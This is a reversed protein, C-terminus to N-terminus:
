CKSGSAQVFDDVSTVVAKADGTLTAAQSPSPNSSLGQLSGKLNAVSAKIASTQSPFDSKASSVVKGADSQVASLKTKLEELGGSQLPNVDGVAKVSGELDSRATCYAPKSSGCGALLLALTAAAAGAGGVRARGTRTGAM